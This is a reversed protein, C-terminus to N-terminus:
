SVNRKVEPLWSEVEFKWIIGTNRKSNRNIYCLCSGCYLLMDHLYMRRHSTSPRRTSLACVASLLFDCFYMRYKIVEKYFPVVHYCSFCSQKMQFHFPSGTLSSRGDSPLARKGSLMRPAPFPCILTLLQQTCIVQRVPRVSTVVICQCLALQECKQSRGIGSPDCLM